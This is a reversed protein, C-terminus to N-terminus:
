EDQWDIILRGGFFEVARVVKNMDINQSKRSYLLFQRGAGCQVGVAHFSIRDERARRRIEDILVSRRSVITRTCLGVRIAQTHIASWSRNPFAAEIEEQSASRYMDKLRKVETTKWGAGRREPFHEGRRSKVSCISRNKFRKALRVLPEEFYRRMLNNEARSWPTKKATCLGLNQRRTNIAHRTRNPLLKLAEIANSRRLVADEAKSWRMIPM